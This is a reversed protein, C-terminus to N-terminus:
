VFVCRASLMFCAVKEDFDSPLDTGGKRHRDYIARSESHLLDTKDDLPIRLVPVEEEGAPRVYLFTKTNLIVNTRKLVALVNAVSKDKLYWSPDLMELFDEHKIYSIAGQRQALIPLDNVPEAKPDYENM